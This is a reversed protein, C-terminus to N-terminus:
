PHAYYRAEAGGQQNRLLAARGVPAERERKKREARRQYAFGLLAVLATAVLPGYVYPSGLHDNAESADLLWLFKPDIHSLLLMTTAVLAGVAGLGATATALIFHKFKVALAAAVVSSLLVSLWFVWTHGGLPPVDGTPITHLVLAYLYYGGAAGSAAGLCAFALTLMNVVFFAALLAVVLPVLGEVWCSATADMTTTRVVAVTAYFCAVLAVGFTSVFLVPKVLRAGFFLAILSAVLLASTLAVKPVAAGVDAYFSEAWQEVDTANVGIFADLFCQDYNLSTM